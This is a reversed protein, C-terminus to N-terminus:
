AFARDVADFAAELISDTDIRMARYLDRRSGSQGFSGV